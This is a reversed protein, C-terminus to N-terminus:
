FINLVFSSGQTYLQRNLMPKHSKIYLAEKITTEVDNRGSDLIKFLDVSFRDKSVQCDNLHDYVTSNAHKHEGLRTALHTKKNNKQQKTKKTKGIM